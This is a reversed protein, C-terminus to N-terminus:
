VEICGYVFIYMYIYVCVCTYIYIHMYVQPTDEDVARAMIELM